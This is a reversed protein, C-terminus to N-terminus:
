PNLDMVSAQHCSHVHVSDPIQESEIALIELPETANRNMQWRFHQSREALSKNESANPM